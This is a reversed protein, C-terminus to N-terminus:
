LLNTPDDNDEVGDDFIDGIVSDEKEVGGMWDFFALFTVVLAGMWLGPLFPSLLLAVGWSVATRILFRRKDEQFKADLREQIKWEEYNM